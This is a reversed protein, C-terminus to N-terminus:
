DPKQQYDAHKDHWEHRERHRVRCLTSGHLEFGHESEGRLSSFLRRAMGGFHIRTKRRPDFM